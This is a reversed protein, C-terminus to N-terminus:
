GPSSLAQNLVQAIRVGARTLLMPMLSVAHEEYASTLQLVQPIPGHCVNNSLEGYVVDVALQHSQAMWDEPQGQGWAKLDSIYRQRWMTAITRYNQGQTAEHVWDVDWVSHLNRVASQGPLRVKVDNGGRDQNDSAHLPQAMDGLVHVLFLVALVRSDKSQRHDSLVSRFHRIAASACAGNPCYDGLSSEATCLPQDDYHWLPSEPWDRKLQARQQDAVLAWEALNDSGMLEILAARASDSLLAAAIEGTIRHGEVGFAGCPSTFFLGM